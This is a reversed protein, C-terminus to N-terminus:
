AGVGVHSLVLLFINSSKKQGNLAALNGRLSVLLETIGQDLDPFCDGLIYVMMWNHAHGSTTLCARQGRGCLSSIAM